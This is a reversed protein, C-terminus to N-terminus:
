ILRDNVIRQRNLFLPMFHDLYRAVLHYRSHPGRRGEKDLHKPEETLKQNAFSLTVVALVGFVAILLLAFLWFILETM